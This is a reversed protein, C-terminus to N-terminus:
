DLGELADLRWLHDFGIRIPHVAECGQGEITKRFELTPSHIIPLHDWSRTYRLWPATNPLHSSNLDLFYSTRTWMSDELTRHRSVIYHVSTMFCQQSEWSGLSTTFFSSVSALSPAKPKIITVSIVACQAAQLYHFRTQSMKDHVATPLSPNLNLRSDTVFEIFSRVPVRLWSSIHMHLQWRPRKRCEGQRRKCAWSHWVTKFAM